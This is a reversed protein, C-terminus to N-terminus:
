RKVKRTTINEGYKKYINFVMSTGMFVILLIAVVFGIDRPMIKQNAALWTLMPYGIIGLDWVDSM